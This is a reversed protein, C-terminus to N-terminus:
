IYIHTHKGRLILILSSSGVLGTTTKDSNQEWTHPIEVLHNKLWEFGIFPSIQSQGFMPDGLM